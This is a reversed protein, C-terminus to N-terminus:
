RYIPFLVKNYTYLDGDDFGIEVFWRPVFEQLAYLLIGGRLFMGKPM